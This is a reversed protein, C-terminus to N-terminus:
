SRRSSLARNMAESGKSPMAIPPEQLLENPSVRACVNRSSSHVTGSRGSSFGRCRKPMPSVSSIKAPTAAPMSVNSQTTGVRSARWPEIQVRRPRISMLRPIYRSSLVMRSSSHAQGTQPPMRRSFATKCARNLALSMSAPRRAVSWLAPKKLLSIARIRLATRPPVSVRSRSSYEWDGYEM